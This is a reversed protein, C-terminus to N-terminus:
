RAEEDRRRQEAIREAVGNDTLSCRSSGWGGHADPMQACEPCAGNRMREVAVPNTYTQAM